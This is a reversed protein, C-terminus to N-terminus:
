SDPNINIIDQVTHDDGRAGDCQGDVGVGPQTHSADAQVAGECQAGDCQQGVVRYPAPM